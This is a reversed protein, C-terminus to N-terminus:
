KYFKGVMDGFQYAKMGFADALTKGSDDIPVGALMYGFNNKDKEAVGAKDMIDKVINAADSKTATSLQKALPKLLDKQQNRMANIEDRHFGPKGSRKEKRALSAINSQLETIKKAENNGYNDAFSKLDNDKAPKPEEKSKKANDVYDNLYKDIEDDSLGTTQKAVNKFMDLDLNPHETNIANAIKEMTAMDQEKNGSKAPESTKKPEADTFEGSGKNADYTHQTMKQPNGDKDVVDVLDDYNGYNAPDVYLGEEISDLEDGFLGDFEDPEEAFTLEEDDILDSGASEKIWKGKNEFKM